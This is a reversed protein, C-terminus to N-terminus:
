WTTPLNYEVWPDVLDQDNPGSRCIVGKDFPSGSTFLVLNQAAGVLVLEPLSYAM